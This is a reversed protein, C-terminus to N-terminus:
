LSDAFQLLRVLDAEKNFNISQEDIYAQLPAQKDKAVLKLSNKKTADLLNNKNDIWYYTTTKLIAVDYSLQYLGTSLTFNRFSSQSSALASEGYGGKKDNELSIRVKKGLKAPKKDAIIELYSKYKYIYRVSDGITINTIEDPVGIAMTDGKDGLYEMEANGLNYNFVARSQSGNRLTYVGETFKDLRYIGNPSIAKKVDDGAKVVIREHIQAKVFFAAPLITLLLFLRKM